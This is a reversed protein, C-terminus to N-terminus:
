YCFDTAAYVSATKTAGTPSQWQEEGLWAEFLAAAREHTKDPLEDDLKVKFSLEVLWPAEDDQHRYWLTLTVRADVAGVDVMAGRYVQEYVQTDAVVTLVQDALALGSFLQSLEGTNTLEADTAITTSSSFISREATVDEELKYEAGAAETGGMQVQAPDSSRFKLTIERDDDAQRERLAYGKARLLCSGAVDFFQIQRERDLEFHGDLDREIAEDAAEDLDNELDAVAADFDGVFLEPDLMLKFERSDLALPEPAVPPSPAQAADFKGASREPARPTDEVPATGCAMGVLQVAFLTLFLRSM